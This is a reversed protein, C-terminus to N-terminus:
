PRYTRARVDGGAIWAAVAGGERTAALTPSSGPDSRAALLRAPGLIGGNAIRRATIARDSSEGMWAVFASGTGDAALVARRGRGLSRQPGLPAGTAGLRALRLEGVFSSDGVPAVVLVEGTRTLAVRAGDTTSALVVRPAGFSGGPPRAAVMLDSDQRWFLLTAGGPLRLVETRNVEGTAVTVAAAFGEPGRDAVLVREDDVWSVTALGDPGTAVGPKSLPSVPLRVGRGGTPALEMADARTRRSWTLVPVPGATWEPFYASQGTTTVNITGAPRGARDITRSQLRHNPSKFRRWVVSFAGDRVYTSVPAEVLNRSSDLLLPARTFGDRARGLRVEAREVPGLHRSWGLLVRDGNGGAAHVGIATGARTQARDASWGATAPAAPALLAAAALPLLRRHPM